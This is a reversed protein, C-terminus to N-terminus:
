PAVAGASVILLLAVLRPANPRDGDAARSGPRDHLEGFAAIARLWAQDALPANALEALVREGGEGLPMLAARRAEAALASVVSRVHRPARGAVQTIRSLVRRRARAVPGVDVGSLEAAARRSLWGDIM